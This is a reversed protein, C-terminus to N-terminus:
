TLLDMPRGSALIAARTIASQSVGPAGTLFILKQAHLAVAYLPLAVRSLGNITGVLLGLSIILTAISVQQIDIGIIRCVGFAMALSVWLLSWFAAQRMSHTKGKRSAYGLDIALMAAIGLAFAAWLGFAVPSPRMNFIVGVVSVDLIFAATATIALISAVYLTKEDPSFGIGNPRTMPEPVM